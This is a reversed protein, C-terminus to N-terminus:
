ILPGLPSGPDPGPPVHGQQSDGKRSGQGPISAETLGKELRKAWAEGEEGWGGVTHSSDPSLGLSM